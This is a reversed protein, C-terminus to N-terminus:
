NAFAFAILLQSERRGIGPILQVCNFTFFVFMNESNDERNIVPRDSCTSGHCRSDCTKENKDLFHEVDAKMGINPIGRRIECTEEPRETHNQEGETAVGDERSNLM